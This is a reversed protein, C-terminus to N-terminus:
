EPLITRETTRKTWTLTGDHERLQAYLDFTFANNDKAATAKDAAAVDPPTAGAAWITLLMTLFGLVGICFHRM